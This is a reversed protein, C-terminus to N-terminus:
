FAWTRGFHFTAKVRGEFRSRDYGPMQDSNRDFNLGVDADVTVPGIAGDAGLAVRVTRRVTGAFLRPTSPLSDYEPFPSQIRGEGQRLLSIEPHLILADRLPIGLSAQFLEHDPFIPGIAVQHYLFNERPDATRYALNTVRTGTVEWTWAAGIAGGLTMTAAYRDPYSTERASASPVSRGVDDIAVQAELRVRRAPWASLDVAQINNRQADRGFVDGDGLISVLGELADDGPRREGQAVATEWLAVTLRSSLRLSVRHMAFWRSAPAGDPALSDDLTAAEFFIHLPRAAVELALDPFPYASASRALGETGVPGWNRTLKGITIDGHSPAFEAFLTSARVDGFHANGRDPDHATVPDEDFTGAVSFDRQALLGAVRAFPALANSPAAPWLLDRRASSTSQAGAEADVRVSPHAAVMAWRQLLRAVAALCWSNDDCQAARLVAVAEDQRVPRIQPRPDEVDGRQVLQEFLPMLRDDIPIWSRGQASAATAACSALVCWFRLVTRRM